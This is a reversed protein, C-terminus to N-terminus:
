RLAKSITMSVWILSLVLYNLQYSYIDEMGSYM